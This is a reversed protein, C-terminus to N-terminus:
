LTITAACFLCALGISAFLPPGATDRKFLLGMPNRRAHAPWTHATTRLSLCNVVCSVIAWLSLGDCCWGFVLSARLWRTAQTECCGSIRTAPPECQLHCVCCPRAPRRRPSHCWGRERRAGSKTPTTTRPSSPNTRPLFPSTPHTHSLHRYCTVIAHSSLM